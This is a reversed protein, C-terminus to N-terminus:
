RGRRGEGELRELHEEAQEATLGRDQAFLAATARGRAGESEEGARRLLWRRASGGARLRRLAGVARAREIPSANPGAPPARSGEGFVSEWIIRDALRQPVVDVVDWPLARSLAANPADEPNTEVLSQEPQIARYRTGEVDPRESGSIFADYLPTALADNLSLPSLGALMEASRLFSYHDYRTTVVTGGRKAWPSIVFAPIRHADVSDIGDQSDDEVVLIASEAWIPSQSVLEVLQGLALDNDAMNAKPTRVGPTTGDTHDNFLILYNFRPV